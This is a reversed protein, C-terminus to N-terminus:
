NGALFQHIRFLIQKGESTIQDCYFRSYGGDIIIRGSGYQGSLLLPQDEIWAEVTLRHDMPFAVSTTGSPITDIEDLYLNGNQSSEALEAQFSGFTSKNFLRQTLQNAETQLPWNEAGIYLGGGQWVFDVLKEVNEPNLGNGGGSFIFIIDSNFTSDLSQLEQTNITDELCLKSQNGYVYAPPQGFTFCSHLLIYLLLVRM